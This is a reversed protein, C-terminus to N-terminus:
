AGTPGVKEEIRTLALNWVATFVIEQATDTEYIKQHDISFFDAPAERGIRATPVKLAKGSSDPVTGDGTGSFPELTVVATAGASTDRVNDNGDVYAQFEGKNRFRHLLEGQQRRPSPQEYSERSYVIRDPSDLTTSYFQVTNDHVQSGLRDHFEEAQSLYRRYLAWPSKQGPRISDAKGGPDLWDPNVMRWPVNDRVRYVDDYPASRPLSVTRGDAGPYTLWQRSGANDRYERTPLLQLGGPMNGLLATVEEGNTGLIWASVHGMGLRELMKLPNLFWDWISKRPGGTPREFGAKMRWYAAPSGTAPQVGHVVGLVKEAAGHLMCASRAVLGGMSHTVLIVRTCLREMPRGAEDKLGKAYHDITADIYEKLKRGADLNSATWNYGFAHVPFEFCHGVPEKWRHDHLAQLIPGYSGLMVGGWGRKNAGPYRRLFSADLKPNDTDVELYDPDFKEGVLLAKKEAADVSALGFKKAMFWSADPDWVREGQDEGQAFKLRSGMIGPVFIIPIVEREIVIRNQVETKLGQITDFLEWWTIDIRNIESSISM